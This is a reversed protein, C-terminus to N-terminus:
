NKTLFKDAVAMAIERKGDVFDVEVKKDTVGRVVGLGFKKHMVKEGVSYPYEKYTKNLDEITIMKKFQQKVPTKTPNIAERKFQSEINSELLNEPLENIFRSKTRFSEEGYMFRSAAYSIYLKDEARTIAVYCLRREEELERPEFDAKKGPFVEDEAGVLFVTPFELGKSNHITMLKVYDKEEELNDTASVLSINELYERLTLTEIIKEMETISNRLEEINNIRNESDEYNSELYDFYKISKIVKDFLESVAESESMDILEMMMKHFEELVIKMNATLTDIEKARGLAEFLTLGNASAFENIKELSKDGIKRKPVNLIRSLNLSDKPNNIVALYAVIDKIEARQYFQMGGFIKYPINFRLFGEEFLRSQANMRYLITFDRYKKGQNKGKIIEEIIVNVEQRGDNCQLLTIKEGTTKKTWLKKDRASSNNSIVANAADLIVSTSRYNEELKVVEADPYDKEFDLINQINAGRFGYISQNEDGVVCLNGYKGAIKNIIKYQINNTDQYEDVMIYRFKDQVKNLIDPIELLKATNILIDSFDMGNNNKLAINYRRYVESVIAANMNYKNEAKEYEDASVEEEKLKSILSVVMGETLNKDKVVLEKMIGKVVRKQDDADYITFNAGYGLRDGYTRLLRVGFSHFTSVMTRKGDEGILDEVREKMEKAAKNTFTVALIKYPSIGLEQIMHAIRYTITRTKGSGAGALILLAGEIKEAAKRQRDNLKELISM